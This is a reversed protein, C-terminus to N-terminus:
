ESGSGSLLCGARRPRSRRAGSGALRGGRSQCLRHPETPLPQPLPHRPLEASGSLRRDLRHRHGPLLRNTLAAFFPESPSREIEVRVDLHERWMQRLAETMAGSALVTLRIDPLGAAYSSQDLLARAREPDFSHGFFDPDFGPMGPPLIGEAVAPIEGLISTVLARKDIALAFAQRVLPDDFPAAAVNFGLYNLGLVKLSVLEDHLPHDPDRLRQIDDVGVGAIDLAGREYEIIQDGVGAGVRVRKLRPSGLHYDAFAVLVAEAPGAEELRFPGTGNPDDLWGRPDREIQRRDVVFAVPYTLKSLFYAKPSDITLELTRDDIVRIGSIEAALGDRFERLGVIDGLYTEATPSAIAPSAATELSYLVDAATVARGDHFRADPRLVFRYTVTGDANLLPVPIAAALDPAVTLDPDLTVLGGFLQGIASASVVDTALAPTACSSLDVWM